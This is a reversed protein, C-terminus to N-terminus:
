DRGPPDTSGYEGTVQRPIRDTVDSLGMARMIEDAVDYLDLGLAARERERAQRVLSRRHRQKAHFRNKGEYRTRNRLHWEGCPCEYAELEEGGEGAASAARDTAAERTRFARKSPTPCAAPGDRV